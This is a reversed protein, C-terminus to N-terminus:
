RERRFGTALLYLEASDARSSAPKVHKVVAFDRNLQALLAPEAGGQLVKGLFAGGRALCECAFDAALEALVMIRLHDTQRHGTTNPAMDSLVVDAEGSILAKVRDPAAADHFDLQLFEVGPITGMELVDIAVVRGKGQ